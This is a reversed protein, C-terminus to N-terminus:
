KLEPFVGKPFPKALCEKEELAQNYRKDSALKYDLVLDYLAGTGCNPFQDRMTALLGLAENCFASMHKWVAIVEEIADARRAVTAAIAYTHIVAAEVNRVELAFARCADDTNGDTYAEAVRRMQAFRPTGVALIDDFSLCAKM